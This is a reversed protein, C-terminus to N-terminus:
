EIEGNELVFPVAAEKTWQCRFAEEAFYAEEMPIWREVFRRLSEEGDRCRIRDRQKQPGVDAFVRLDMYDGFAPRCSYAGEVIRYNGARVWVEEGLEMKGCDFRPYSFGATSRLYPLVQETFREYHVNGGPEALRESTRLKAPLFFDDMHIVGADLVEALMSALTTKGSACRGDIAIVCTDSTKESLETLKELIPLLRIYRSCVIRYAPAEADRYIESHHVPGDVTTRYIGEECLLVGSERWKQLSFGFVGKEALREAETLYQPFLVDGDEPVHASSEVFMRFLWELPLGRRKWPRLNIRCVKTHIQEYLPEEPVGASLAEYEQRLYAYAAERDTLLHEAGYAAQFCLKVVDGPQMSPHALAQQRLYETVKQDM